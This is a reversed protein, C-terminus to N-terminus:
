ECTPAGTPSARSVKKNIYNEFDQLKKNYIFFKNKVVNVLKKNHKLAM